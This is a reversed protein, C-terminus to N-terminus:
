IQWSFLLNTYSYFMKIYEKICFYLINKFMYIYKKRIIEGQICFTHFSQPPPVNCKCQIQLVFDKAHLIDCFYNFQTLSEMTFSLKYINKSTGTNNLFNFFQLYLECYIYIYISRSLINLEFHHKKIKKELLHIGVTRQSSYHVETSRTPWHRLLVRSDSCLYKVITWLM